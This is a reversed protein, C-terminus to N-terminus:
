TRAPFSVSVRAGNENEIQITAQLQAALSKMITSGLGETEATPTIGLGNDSVMLQVNGEVQRLSIHIEGRETHVFAHKLANTILESLILALPMLQNLTLRTDDAEFRHTVTQSSATILDESIRELYVRAPADIDGPEYLHRHVNSMMLLRDQADVLARDATSGQRFLKRQQNLMASVFALNNAVRHQLEAFLTRTHQHLSVSKSALDQAQDVAVNLANTLYLILVGASIFQIIGIIDQTREIRFSGAPTVFFFWVSLLSTSFIALGVSLGGFLTAVLVAPIFGVYGPFDVYSHLAIRLLLSIVFAAVGVGWGAIGRQRINRAFDILKVVGGKTLAILHAYV